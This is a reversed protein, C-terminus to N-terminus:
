FDLHATFYITEFIWHTIYQLYIFIIVADSGTNSDTKSGSRWLLTTIDWRHM